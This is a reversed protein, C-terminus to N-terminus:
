VFLIGNFQLDVYAKNRRMKEKINNQKALM